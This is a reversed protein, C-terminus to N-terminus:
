YHTRRRTPLALLVCLLVGITSGMHVSLCACVCVCDRERVSM